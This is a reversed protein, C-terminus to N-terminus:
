RARCGNTRRKCASSGCYRELLPHFLPADRDVMRRDVSPGDAEQRQDLFYGAFVLTRDTGAPAHALRVDLDLTDSFVKVAGDVLLALGDIEQQRRLVVHGRRLAEEFLGYSRVAIWVFDRNVLAALLAAISSILAPCITGIRTRWTLYM